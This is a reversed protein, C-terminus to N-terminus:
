LHNPRISRINMSIMESAGTNELCPPKKKTSLCVIDHLIANTLMLNYTKINKQM